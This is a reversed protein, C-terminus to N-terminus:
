EKGRDLERDKGVVQTSGSKEKAKSLMSNLSPRKEMGSELEIVEDDGYWFGGEVKGQSVECESGDAFRIFEEDLNNVFDATGESVEIDFVEGTERNVTCGTEVCFGGDWVSVFTAKEFFAELSEKKMGEVVGEIMKVSLGSGM